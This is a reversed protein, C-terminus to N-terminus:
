PDGEAALGSLVGLGFMTDRGYPCGHKLYSAWQACLPAYLAQVYADYEVDAAAADARLKEEGVALVTAWQEAGPSGGLTDAVWQAFVHSASKADLPEPPQAGLIEERTLREASLPPLELMHEMQRREEPTLLQPFAESIAQMAEPMFVTPGATPETSSDAAPGATEVITATVGGPFATLVGRVPPASLDGCGCSCNECVPTQGCNDCVGVAHAGCLFCRTSM